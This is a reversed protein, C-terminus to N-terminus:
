KEPVLRVARVNLAFMRNIHTPRVVLEQPGTKRLIVPGLDLEVYNMWNGTSATVGNARQGGVTVDFATGKADDGCSYVVFIRFTGRQPLDFKWAATANTTRWLGINDHDAGSEYAAMGDGGIKADRAKFELVGSPDDARAAVVCAALVVCFLLTFFPKM